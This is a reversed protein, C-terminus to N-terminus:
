PLVMDHWTLCLALLARQIQLFCEFRVACMLTIKRSFEWIKIFKKAFNSSEFNWIKSVPALIFIKHWFPWISSYKVYAQLFFDTTGWELKESFRDYNTRPFFKPIMKKRWFVSFSLIELFKKCILFKTEALRLLKSLYMYM